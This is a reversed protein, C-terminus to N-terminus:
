ATHGKDYDITFSLELDGDQYSAIVKFDDAQLWQEGQGEDTINYDIQTIQEVEADVLGDEDISLFLIYSLGDSEYLQSQWHGKPSISVEHKKGNHEFGVLFKAQKFLDETIIMSMENETFNTFFAPNGGGM